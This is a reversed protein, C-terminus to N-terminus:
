ANGGGKKKLETEVVFWAANLRAMKDADGGPKDPHLVISMKRYAARLSDTDCLACFELLANEFPGLVAARQATLMKLRSAEQEKWATEAQAKTITAVAGPWLQSALEFMIDYWAEKIFWIKLDPNWARDSGPIKAKIFEIFNENFQTKVSYASRAMDWEFTCQTTPRSTTQAQSYSSIPRSRYAVNQGRKGYLNSPPSTLPNFSGMHQQAWQQKAYQLNYCAMCLGGSNLRTNPIGCALCVIKLPPLQGYINTVCTACIGVTVEVSSSLPARCLMCQKM